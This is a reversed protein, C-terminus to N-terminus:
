TVANSFMPISTYLNYVFSSIDKMIYKYLRVEFYIVVPTIHTIIRLSLLCVELCYAEAHQVTRLNAYKRM